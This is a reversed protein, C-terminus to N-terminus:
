QIKNTVNQNKEGVNKVGLASYSSDKRLPSFMFMFM